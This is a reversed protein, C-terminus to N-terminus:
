RLGTTCTLSKPDSFKVVPVRSSSDPTYEWKCEALKQGNRGAIFKVFGGKPPVKVGVKRKQGPTLRNQPGFNDQGEVFIHVNEGAKNELEAMVEGTGGGTTKGLGERYGEDFGSALCSGWGMKNDKNMYDQSLSKCDSTMKDNNQKAKQGCRVGEKYAAQKQSPDCKEKTGKNNDWKDKGSDKNQSWDKEKTDKNGDWKDKGTGKNKAWDTWDKGGSKRDDPPYLPPYSQQDGGAAEDQKKSSGTYTESQPAIVQQNDQKNGAQRNDRFGQQFEDGIKDVQAIDITKDQDNLIVNPDKTPDYGTDTRGSTVEIVATAPKVNRRLYEETDEGTDMYKSTAGPPLPIGIYYATLTFKTGPKVDRDISVAFLKQDGWKEPNSIRTISAGSDSPEVMFTTASPPPYMYQMKGTDVRKHEYTFFLTQSQEGQPVKLKLPSSSTEPKSGLLIIKSKGVKSSTAKKSTDDQPPKKTSSKEAEVSITINSFGKNGMSDTAEAIINNPGPKQAKFLVTTGDGSLAGSWKIKYPSKGGTVAATIYASEGAKLMNNDAMLSVDLKAPRSTEVPPKSSGPIKPEDKPKRKDINDKATKLIKEIDSRDCDCLEKITLADNATNVAQEDNIGGYNPHTRWQTYNNLQSLASQVGPVKKCESYINSGIADKLERVMKEKQPVPVRDNGPTGGGLPNVFPIPITFSTDAPAIKEDFLKKCECPRKDKILAYCQPVSDKITFWDKQWTEVTKRRNKADDNKKDYDVAKDLIKFATKFDLDEAIISGPLYSIRKSSDQMFQEVQSSLNPDIGKAQNARGEAKEIDGQNTKRQARAVFPEPSAFWYEDILRKAEGFATDFADRRIKKVEVATAQTDYGANYTCQVFCEGESIMHSRWCGLGFGVCPGNLADDCSPSANKWAKPDYTAGVGVTPNITCRCICGFLEEKTKPAATQDKKDPEKPKTDPKTETKTEPLKKEGCDLKKKAYDSFMDKCSEVKKCIDDSIGKRLYERAETSNKGQCMLEYTKKMYDKIVSDQAQTYCMKLVDKPLGNQEFIEDLRGNFNKEFNKYMEVSNLLIDFNWGMQGSRNLFTYPNNSIKRDYNMGWSTAPARLHSLNVPIGLERAKKLIEKAEKEKRYREQIWARFFKNENSNSNQFEIDPPCGAGRAFGKIAEIELGAQKDYDITIAPKNGAPAEQSAMKEKYAKYLIKLRNDTHADVVSSMTLEVAKKGPERIIETIDRLTDSIGKKDAQYGVAQWAAVLGSVQAYDDIAKQTANSDPDLTEAKDCGDAAFVANHGSILLVVTLIFMSCLSKTRLKTM